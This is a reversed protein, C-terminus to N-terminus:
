RNFGELAYAKLREPDREGHDRWAVVIRKAIMDRASQEDTMVDPSAAIESWARDFAEQLTQLTAPDFNSQYPTFPM